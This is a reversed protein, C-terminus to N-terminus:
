RSDAIISDADFVQVLLVEERWDGHTVETGVRGIVITRARQRM